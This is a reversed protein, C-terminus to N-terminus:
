KSDTNLVFSYLRANEITSEKQLLRSIKRITEDSRKFRTKM